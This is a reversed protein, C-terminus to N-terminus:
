DLDVIFSPKKPTLEEENFSFKIDDHHVFDDDFLDDDKNSLNNSSDDDGQMEKM